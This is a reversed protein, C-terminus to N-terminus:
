HTVQVAATLYKAVLHYHPALSTQSQVASSVIEVHKSHLTLRRDAIALLFEMLAEGEANTANEIRSIIFDMMRRSIQEDCNAYALEYGRVARLIASQIIGDNFRGFNDPSLVAREYAKYALKPKGHVGQRLNHLVASVVVFIDGQSLPRKGGDTTLLTFDSRIELQRGKSDPWFLQKSIGTVPAKNQLFQIRQMVEQPIDVGEIDAWHVIENLLRLESVWSHANNEDPIDIEIGSYLSFTNVGNEGFTLNSKIRSREHRSAARFVPTIYSTNGQPHKSRMELNIAMLEHSDDVCSAVVLAAARPTTNLSRFERMNLVLDPLGDQHTKVVENARVALEKSFPYSAHIIQQLNVPAGRLVMGDWRKQLRHLMDKTPAYTPEFQPFLAEVNLFIEQSGSDGNRYVKFFDIGALQNFLVQRPEPLDSLALEIEEVKPPEFSFQDGKLSVPFSKIKCYPCNSEDYNEIPTSGFHGDASDRTLDCLIHGAKDRGDGLFYLTIVNEDSAGNQVLKEKLGGSTTASVLLVTKDPSNIKLRDIGEYSHHSSVLPLTELGKRSYAEYAVLIAVDSIGSTDVVIHEIGKKWVYPLLWFSILSAAANDELVNATRLFTDVHKESQKVYHFGKPARLFGSNAVFLEQLGFRKNIEIAKQGDTSIDGDLSRVIHCGAREDFSIVRTNKSLNTTAHMLRGYISSDSKLWAHAQSLCDDFGVFHIADFQDGRIIAKSLPGDFSDESINPRFLFISLVRDIKQGETPADIIRISFPNM